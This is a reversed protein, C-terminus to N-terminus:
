GLRDCKGLTCYTVSITELRQLNNLLPTFVLYALSRVKLSFNMKRKKLHFKRKKYLLILQLKKIALEAIDWFLVRHVKFYMLISVFKIIWAQTFNENGHNRHWVWILATDPFGLLGESAGFWCKRDRKKSDFRKSSFRINKRRRNMVSQFNAPLYEQMPSKKYLTNTWLFQVTSM